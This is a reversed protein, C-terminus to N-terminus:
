LAAVVVFSPAHSYFLGTMIDSLDTQMKWRKAFSLKPTKCIHLGGPNPRTAKSVRMGIGQKLVDHRLWIPSVGRARLCQDFVPESEDLSLRVVEQAETRSSM